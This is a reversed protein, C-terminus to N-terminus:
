PEKNKVQPWNADAEKLFSTAPKSKTNQWKDRTDALFGNYFLLLRGDQILFSKVDVEVKEKKEAVAYACWGGFAPLYKLPNKLFEQQNAESSFQYSVGEIKAQFKADGKLPGNKLAEERFYSVPDYGELALGAKNTNATTAGALLPPFILIAAALVPLIFKIV